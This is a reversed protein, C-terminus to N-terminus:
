GDSSCSLYQRGTSGLPLLPVRAVATVLVGFSGLPRLTAVLTTATRM